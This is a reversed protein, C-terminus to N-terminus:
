DVSKFGGSTARPLLFNIREPSRMGEFPYRVFQKGDLVPLIRMREEQRKNRASAARNDSSSPSNPVCSIAHTHTEKRHRDRTGRHAPNLPPTCTDFFPAVRPPTRGARQFDVYAHRTHEEWAAGNASSRHCMHKSKDHTNPHGSTPAGVMRRSPDASFYFKIENEAALAQISEYYFM